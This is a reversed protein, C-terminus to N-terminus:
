PKMNKCYTCYPNGVFNTTGCRPCVWKDSACLGIFMDIVRM